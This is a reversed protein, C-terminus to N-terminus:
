AATDLGDNVAGAIGAYVHDRLGTANVECMSKLEGNVPVKFACHHLRARGEDTALEVASMFHHSAIMLRDVRTSGTLIRWALGLPNHRDIRHLWHWAARPLTSAFFGPAQVVMGALRALAETPRDARFTVGAWRTFVTELLQRDRASSNVSLPLYRPAAGPRRVSAGIVFRSCGPHGMWWQNEDLRGSQGPEICLGRAIERWLADIDVRGIGAETRGVDAVPMFGVMRFVDANEQMWRVIDAVEGLNQPTVTITTGIRLNLGTTHRATRVMEAFEARLPMLEAERSASKYTAGRRGRQTTDIHVSVEDLGGDVMLRELLGPNRRFSDGHTMLMPILGIARAYRLLEIVEEVPRLTVEGDTLQLNGSPGLHRRLIRMQAKVEDLEMAPIRNAGAALYCGRCAFDCRPMVGITAGCGEEHRGLMQNETRFEPAIGDWIAALTHRAEPDVPHRFRHWLGAFTVPM